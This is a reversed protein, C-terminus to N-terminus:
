KLNKSATVFGATAPFTAPPLGPYAKYWVDTPLQHHRQYRKFDQELWAGKALLWDTTPYAM